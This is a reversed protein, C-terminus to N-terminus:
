QHHTTDIGFIWNIRAMHDRIRNQERRKIGARIAALGEPSYTRKSAPKVKRRGDWSAKIKAHIHDRQGSAHQAKLQQSRMRKTEASQFTGIKARSMAARHESSKPKGKNGASIKAKSEESHQFGTMAISLKRKTEEDLPGAKGAITRQNYNGAWLTAAFDMWHQERQILVEVDCYEIVVFKLDGRYKVWARQLASNDHRNNRLDSFHRAKRKKLRCSSGIYVRNSPSLIIYIGSDM